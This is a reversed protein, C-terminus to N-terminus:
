PAGTFNEPHKGFDDLFAPWGIFGPQHLRDGGGSVIIAGHKPPLSLTAPVASPRAFRNANRDPFLSSRLGRTFPATAVAASKGGPNYLTTYGRQDCTVKLGIVGDQQIKEVKAVSKTTAPKLELVAYYTGKYDRQDKSWDNLNAEDVLHFENHPGRVGDATLGDATPSLKIGKLNTELVRVLLNGYRCTTDDLKRAPSKDFAGSKGRGLEINLTIANARQRGDPTLEVLGIMRDPLYLWSQRGKWPVERRAPGAMRKALTYDAALAAFDRGIAVTVSESSITSAGTPFANIGYVAASFARKGDKPPEALTLGVYTNKGVLQDTVRGNMAASYLGYNMRAGQINRDYVTYRDPLTLKPQPHTRYVLADKMSPESPQHFHDPGKLLLYYPNGTLYYVVRHGACSGAGYWSQKWSPVTYWETTLNSDTVSIPYLELKRLMDTIKPDRTMLHCDYALNICAGHYGPSENQKAIYSTGGDEFINADWTHVQALGRAAYPEDDLFLGCAIRIRGYGLDANSYNGGPGGDHDKAIRRVVRTWREKQRPLIMEPYTKDLIVAGMLAAGLAFFHYNKRGHHDDELYADIRRLARVLLESKDQLPSQPHVFMMLWDCAAVAETFAGNKGYLGTYAATSPTPLKWAHDPTATFNRYWRENMAPDLFPNDQAQLVPQLWPHGSLKRGINRDLGDRIDAMIDIGIDFAGQEVAKGLKELQYALVAKKRLQEPSSEPLARIRQELGPAAEALAIEDPSLAPLPAIAVSFDRLKMTGAFRIGAFRAKGVASKREFRPKGDTRVSVIGKRTDITIEVEHWGGPTYRQNAGSIVNAGDLRGSSNVNRIVAHDRGADSLIALLEHQHASEFGLMSFELSVLGETPPIEWVAPGSMFRTGSEEVIVPAVKFGAIRDGPKLPGGDPNKSLDVHFNVPAAAALSSLSLLLLSLRRLLVRPSPIM